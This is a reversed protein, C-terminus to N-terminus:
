QVNEMAIHIDLRKGSKDELNVLTEIVREQLISGKNLLLTGAETTLNRALIMGPQLMRTELKKEVLNVDISEVKPLVKLFVAVIDPDYQKGSRDQIDQLAEKSNLPEVLLRGHLSDYYDRAVAIIKSATPISERTKGDPVGSGDFWELQSRIIAGVQRLEPIGLLIAEGYLPHERFVRLEEHTFELKPKDTLGPPLAAWGIRHLRTARRLDILEHEEFNLEEGMAMALTIKKGTSISEVGPKAALNASLDVMAEYSSKLEDMSKQLAAHAVEVEATCAAVQKELDAVLESLQGNEVNSAELNRANERYRNTLQLTESVMQRLRENECRRSIFGAIGGNNIASVLTDLEPSDALLLRQTHPQVERVKSLFEALDMDPLQMDVILVDVVSNELVELARASTNAAQVLVGLSNLASKLSSAAKTDGDICLVTQQNQNSM